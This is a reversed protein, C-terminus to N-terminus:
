SSMEFVESADLEAGATTAEKEHRNRGGVEACAPIGSNDVDVPMPASQTLIEELDQTRRSGEGRVVDEQTRTMDSLAKKLEDVEKELKIQKQKVVIKSPLM